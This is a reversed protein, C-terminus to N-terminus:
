AACLAVEPGIGGADGLTVALVVRGKRTGFRMSSSRSM